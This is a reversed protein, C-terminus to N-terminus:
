SPCVIPIEELTAICYGIDLLKDKPCEARYVGEIPKPYPKYYINGDECLQEFLREHGTIVRVKWVDKAM